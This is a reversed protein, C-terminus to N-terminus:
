IDFKYTSNDYDWYHDELVLKWKIIAEDTIGSTFLYRDTDRTDLFM